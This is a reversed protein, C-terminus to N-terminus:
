AGSIDDGAPAPESTREASSPPSRSLLLKRKEEKLQAVRARANRQRAISQIRVIAEEEEVDRADKGEGRSAKCMASDTLVIDEVTRAMISVADLTSSSLLIGETPYRNVSPRFGVIGCCSAPARADGSSDVALAVPAIRAAIAAAAGGASGGTTAGHSSWPNESPGRLTSRTTCGLCLEHVSTKAM